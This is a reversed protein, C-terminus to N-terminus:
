TTVYKKSPIEWNKRTVRHKSTHIGDFRSYSDSYTTHYGDIVVVDLDGTGDDHLVIAAYMYNNAMMVDVRDGPELVM